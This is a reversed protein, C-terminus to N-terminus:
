RAGSLRVPQGKPEASTRLWEPPAGVPPIDTIGHLHRVLRRYEEPSDNRLDVGHAGSLATPMASKWDGSRLVPIFKNEGVENVIEGTIIHGEYGAGGERNDFRRKYGETCVVLVCRSERVSREMFEPSRAGLPLHTQDLVADIGDHRLQKALWLVWAKHEESDWSYSIFVQSPSETNPVM